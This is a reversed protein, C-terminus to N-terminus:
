DKILKNILKTAFEQEIEGRAVASGIEAVAQDIKGFEKAEQTEKKEKEEQTIRAEEKEVDVGLYNCILDLTTKESIHGLSRANMIAQLMKQVEDLEYDYIPPFLIQLNFKGEPNSEKERPFDDGLNRHIKLLLEEFSRTFMTQRRQIKKIFPWKMSEATARNIDTGVSLYHLPIEAGAAIVKMIRTLMEELDFKGTPEVIAYDVGPPLMLQSGPPLSRRLGLKQDVDRDKRGLVTKLKAKYKTNVGLFKGIPQSSFLRRKDAEETVSDYLDLWYFLHYLDSNGYLSDSVSNIMIHIMEDPSIEEESDEGEFQIYKQIELVNSEATYKKITKPPLIAIKVNGDDGKFFRIFSDGYISSETGLQFLDIDKFLKRAFAVQENDGIFRIGKGFTAAAILNVIPRAFQNELYYKWAKEYTDLRSTPAKWNKGKQTIWSGVSTSIQGYKARRFPLRAELIKRGLYKWKKGENKVKEIFTM